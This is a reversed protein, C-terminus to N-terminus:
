IKRVMYGPRVVALPGVRALSDRESVSEAVIEELDRGKGDMLVLRSGKELGHQRGLGFYIAFGAEERAVRYIEAEGAEAMLKERRCSVLFLTGCVLAVLLFFAGSVVWPSIGTFREVFSELDARLSANNGYVTIQFTNAGVKKQDDKGFVTLGYQGPEIGADLRLTGRWMRTGFWFGSIVEELAISVFDSSGSYTMRELNKTEPPMPGTLRTSEGALMRLSNSPTRLYAAAGDLVAILFLACVAAGAGALLNKWRTIQELSMKPVRIEGAQAARPLGPCLHAGPASLPFFCRFFVPSFDDVAKSALRPTGAPGGPIAM